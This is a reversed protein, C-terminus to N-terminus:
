IGDVHFFIWWMELRKLTCLINIKICNRTFCDYSAGNVKSVNLYICSKPGTIGRFICM